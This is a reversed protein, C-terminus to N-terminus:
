YHIMQQYIIIINTIMTNKLSDVLFGSFFCFLFFLLLLLLLSLLLFTYCVREIQFPTTNNASLPVDDPPNSPTLPPFLNRVLPKSSPRCGIAPLTSTNSKLMMQSSQIIAAAINHTNHYVYHNCYHSPTVIINM